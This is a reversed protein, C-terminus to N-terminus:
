VDFIDGMQSVWLSVRLKTPTGSDISDIDLTLKASRGVKEVAFDPRSTISGSSSSTALPTTLISTGDANVDLTIEGTDVWVALAIPRFEVLSLQGDQATGTGLATSDDVGFTFPFYAGPVPGYDVSRSMIQLAPQLRNLIRVADDPSNVRSTVIPLRGLPRSM